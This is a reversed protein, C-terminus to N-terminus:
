ITDVMDFMPMAMAIVIFGIVLAMVLILLPEMLSTLRQLSEEVEADYFDATKQLIDDLSGSEEGINIMSDVMPPFIGVDKVARALPAGRRINEIGEILRDHVIANNVVRAVVEMSAILPIGSAMLTSLTRTFRSTIIKINTIKIYPIKLKLNDVLRRGAETSKFYNFLLSILVGMGLIIFWYDQMWDSIGLVFKTPWPLESGSGEFMGVFTPLVNLLMFIVVAISVVILVMPYVMASKIKNDLKNEKEFHEAMREMIEDLNGSVEGADVMNILINPFINPHKKMAGSITFGKQVDEYVEVLTKKLTRNETQMVLIDLCKVIGLGANIMTYFQRCFIALDKKKIKPKFLDIQSGAGVDIEIDVPLFDRGKIMSVVEDKSNAEYIGEITQGDHTIAKYKYIM